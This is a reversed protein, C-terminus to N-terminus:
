CESSFGILKVTTTRFLSRCSIPIAACPLRPSSPTWQYTSFGRTAVFSASWACTSLLEVVRNGRASGVGSRGCNNLKVSYRGHTRTRPELPRLSIATARSRPHGASRASAIEVVASPPRKAFADLALSCLDVLIQLGMFVQRQLQHPLLTPLAVRVAVGVAPEAIEVPM